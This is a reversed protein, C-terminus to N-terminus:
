KLLDNNLLDTLYPLPSKWYRATRTNVEKLKLVSESESFWNTFKESTYAKRAFKQCLTVRRDVLTEMQLQELAKRYSSYQKGLIIAFASKQVREIKNSDGVTLGPSWAPVALELVSRCQKIYVDLLDPISAGLKKLNRLMWLKSYGKACIYQTNAHWKMDSTIKIGLLKFEEEIDLTTGTDTTVTPHFDYKKNPNFVMIKSKKPNIKMENENVFATLRDMQEQLVNKENPLIHNTRNHYTVPREPAVPNEILDKKVNISTLFSLDDIYKLHLNKIPKRRAQTIKDGTGEDIDSFPFGAFNIMILFLFMGLKTGQPSGGPLRKRKSQGGKYKLILERESLFGMVIKLLWGPVGMDSLITILKNHNLRNFAKKFDVLLAVIARPNSM